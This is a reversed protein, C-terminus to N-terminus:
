NRMSQEVPGEFEMLQAPLKYLKRSQLIGLRDQCPLRIGCCEDEGVYQVKDDVITYVIGIRGKRYTVGVLIKVSSLQFLTQSIRLFLQWSQLVNDLQIAPISRLSSSSLWM